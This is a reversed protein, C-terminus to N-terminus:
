VSVKYWADNQSDNTLIFRESWKTGLIRKLVYSTARQVTNLGNYGQSRVESLNMVEVSLAEKSVLSGIKGLQALM